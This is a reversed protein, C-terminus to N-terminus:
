KKFKNHKEKYKRIIFEIILAIIVILILEVFLIGMAKYDRVCMREEVKRLYPCTFPVCKHNYYLENDKCQLLLCSHNSAYETEACNLAICIHNSPIENYACELKVCSHNLATEYDTCNLEVCKHNLITEYDACSLRKCSNGICKEDPSCDSDDCCSYKACGYNYAFYCDPCEIPKCKNDVCNMTNNCDYKVRCDYLDIARVDYDYCTKRSFVGKARYEVDYRSVSTSICIYFLYKDENPMEVLASYSKSEDPKIIIGGEASPYLVKSEGEYSYLNVRNKSKTDMIDIGVVELNLSGKNSMIITLNVKEQKICIGDPCDYIIEYYQANVLSVATFIM